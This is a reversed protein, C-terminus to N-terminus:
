IEEYDTIGIFAGRPDFPYNEDIPPDPIFRSCYKEDEYLTGTTGAPLFTRHVDELLKVRM